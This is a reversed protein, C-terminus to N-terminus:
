TTNEVYENAQHLMLNDIPNKTCFSKECITEFFFTITFNLQNWLTNLLKFMLRMESM